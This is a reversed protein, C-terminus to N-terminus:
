RVTLAGRVPGVASRDPCPDTTRRHPGATRTAVTSTAPASVPHLVPPRALRDPDFSAVAGADGVLAGVAAALEAGAVVATGVAVEGVPVEDGGGDAAAGEGVFRGAVVGAGVVGVGRGVVAELEGVATAGAATLSTGPGSPPVRHAASGAYVSSGAV